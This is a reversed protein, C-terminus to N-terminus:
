TKKVRPLVFITFLFILFFSFMSCYMIYPLSKEIAFQSNYHSFAGMIAAASAIGVSGGVNTLVSAISNVLGLHDTPTVKIMATVLCPRTVGVSLGVFTLLIVLVWAPTHIGIYVFAFFSIVSMGLGVALFVSYSSKDIYKGIRPSVLLMMITLPLFLIGAKLSSYGLVYQIYLAIIFVLANVPFGHLLRLLCCIALTKNAILQPSILPNKSRKENFVFLIGMIITLFVVCYFLIPQSSIKSIIDFLSVVLFLFMALLILGPLDLKSIVFNVKKVPTSFVRSILLLSVAAVAINFIFFGRWSWVYSIAGGFFPGVAMAAGIISSMIGSIFGHREKPFIKYLGSAATPTIFAAGVGQFFRGIVVIMLSYGMATICSGMIFIILGLQLVVKQGFVDGCRGCPIILASYILLYANTIWETKTAAIHLGKAILALILNVATVDVAVLFSIIVLTFFQMFHIETSEMYM